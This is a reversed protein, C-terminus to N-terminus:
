WDSALMMAAGLVNKANERCVERARLGQDDGPLAPAAFLVLIAIGRAVTECSTRFIRMGPGRESPTGIRVYHESPGRAMSRRM